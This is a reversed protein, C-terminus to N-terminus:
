RQVNKLCSLEGENPFNLRAHEGDYKRCYEDYAKAALEPTDFRGIRTVRKERTITTRWQEASKDFTVGRYGSTNNVHINTNSSNKSYTVVRLNHRRNDLKDMSIHDICFEKGHPLILSHMSVSRRPNYLHSRAYGSNDIYWTYKKVNDLDETDVLAYGGTTLPIKSYFGCIIPQWLKRSNKGLETVLERRLCGCSRVSGEKLRAGLAIAERGCACACFWTIKNHANDDARRLVTLRGYKKGTLDIFAGM